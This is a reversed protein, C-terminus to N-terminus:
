RCITAAAYETYRLCRRLLAGSEAYLRTAAAADFIPMAYRRLPAYAAAYCRCICRSPTAASLQRMLAFFILVRRRLCAAAYIM